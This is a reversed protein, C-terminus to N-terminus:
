GMVASAVTAVEQPQVVSTTLTGVVLQWGDVMVFLLLKFPVSILVPPLMLMGMSILMSAIVVDIVLFPLYIRFGMLFAVKLESLIYAPVLTLMDVDARTLRQPQSTDVGRYSLVMYVGSWNGTAELQSFMFDRLPQKAREWAVTYDTIEGTSYPHIGEEYMRGLTPTMVVFTIFLSLGVIVQSPPLGQTGLAQRLLGLVIIIRTFCTCLVLIAPALSLVTLLLLINLSTSLGGEYGPVHESIDQLVGIPNFEGPQAGVPGTLALPTVVAVLLLPAVPWGCTPGGKM